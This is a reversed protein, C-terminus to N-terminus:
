ATAFPTSTEIPIRRLIAARILAQRIDETAVGSAPFGSAIRAAELGASFVEEPSAAAVAATIERLIAPFESVERSGRRRSPSPFLEIITASMVTLRTAEM